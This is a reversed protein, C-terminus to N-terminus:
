RKMRVGVSGGVIRVGGVGVAGVGLERGTGVRRRGLWGDLGQGRGHHEVVVEIIFHVPEVVIANVIALVIVVALEIFVVLHKIGLTAKKTGALTDPHLIALVMGETGVTEDSM